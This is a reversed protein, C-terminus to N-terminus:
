PKGGWARVAWDMNSLRITECSDPNILFSTMENGHKVDTVSVIVWKGDPSWTYSGILMRWFSAILHRGSGDLNAIFIGTQQVGTVGDEFLIKKGDPSPIAATIYSSSFSFLDKMEGNNIDIIQLLMPEKYSTRSVLLHQGDPLWGSLLTESDTGNVKYLGSGDVRSIYIGDDSDYAILDTNNLWSIRNSPSKSWVYEKVEGSYLNTIRANNTQWDYNVIMKGDPSFAFAQAPLVNQKESGKLDIMATFLSNLGTYVNDILLTGSLEAPIETPLIKRNMWNENLFCANYLESNATSPSKDISAPDFDVQWNGQASFSVLNFAFQRKGTPFANAYKFQSIIQKDQFFTYFDDGSFSQISTDFIFAGRVDSDGTMKFELFPEGYKVLAKVSSLHINHGALEFDENLSWQQNEQPNNGFDVEFNPSSIQDQEFHFNASPVTLTLASPACKEQTYFSFELGTPMGGLGFDYPEISIQRGTSDTLIMKTVDFSEVSGNAIDSQNLAGKIFCRDSFTEIQDISVSLQPFDKPYPSPTPSPSANAIPMSPAVSSSEITPEQNGPLKIKKVALLVLLLIITSVLIAWFLKKSFMKTLQIDKKM